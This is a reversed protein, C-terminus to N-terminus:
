RARRPPAPARDAADFGRVRRAFADDINCHSKTPPVNATESKLRDIIQQQASATAADEEARQTAAAAIERSAEAERALEVQHARELAARQAAERDACAQSARHHGVGYAVAAALILQGLRSTAFSWTASVFPKLVSFAALIPM